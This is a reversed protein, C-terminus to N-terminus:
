SVAAYSARPQHLLAGKGGCVSPSTGLSTGEITTAVYRILAFRCLPVPATLQQLPWPDPSGADLALLEEAILASYSHCM